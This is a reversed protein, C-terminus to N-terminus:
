ADRERLKYTLSGISTTFFLGVFWPAMNYGFVTVFPQVFSLVLMGISWMTIIVILLVPITIRERLFFFFGILITLLILYGLAYPNDEIVFQIFEYVFSSILFIHVFSELLPLVDLNKRKAKYFLLLAILVIAFYFAKSDSPYALISLPDSIFITINLVIKGVWIFIVFNILQSTLEEMHKKKKEKTLDSFLYLSLYGLALSLAIIGIATLKSAIAM